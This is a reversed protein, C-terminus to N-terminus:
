MSIRITQKVDGIAGTSIIINEANFNVVQDDSDKGVVRLYNVYCNKATIKIAYVVQSFLSLSVAGGASVIAPNDRAFSQLETANNWDLNDFQTQDAVPYIKAVELNSQNQCTDQWTIELTSIGTVWTETNYLYLVLSRNEELDEEIAQTQVKGSSQWVAGTEPNIVDVINLTEVEGGGKRIKYLSAEMGSEAAYYSLTQSKIYRSRFMGALALLVIVLGINLCIGMILITSLLVNGKNFGGQQYKISM